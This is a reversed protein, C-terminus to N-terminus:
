QRGVRIITPPSQTSFICFRHSPSPIIIIIIVVDIVSVKM